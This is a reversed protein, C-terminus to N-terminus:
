LVAARLLLSFALMAAAQSISLAWAAAAPKRLIAPMRAGSLPSVALIEIQRTKACEGHSSNGFTGRSPANRAALRTRFSIKRGRSPQFVMGLDLSDGTGM